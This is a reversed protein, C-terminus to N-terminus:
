TTRPPRDQGDTHYASIRATLEPFAASATVRPSQVSPPAFALPTVCGGGACFQCATAHGDSPSEDSAGGHAHGHTASHHAQMGHSAHKDHEPPAAAAFTSAMAKEGPCLMAAAVAGRIPLLVTLLVLIFTRLSKVAPNDPVLDTDAACRSNGQSPM